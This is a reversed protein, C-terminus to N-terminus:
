PKSWASKSSIASQLPTAMGEPERVIGGKGRSLTVSSCLQPTDAPPYERGIPLSEYNAAFSGREEKAVIVNRSSCCSM